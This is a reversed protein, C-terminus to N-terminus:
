SSGAGADPAPAPVPAPAEDAPKQALASPVDPYIEFVRDLRSIRLIDSVVPSLCCLRLRGSAQEVRRSLSVLKGLMTSSLYRVGGLHLVIQKFGQDDVLRLLQEGVEQVVGEAFIIDTNVFRVVATGDVVEVTLHNRETAEM